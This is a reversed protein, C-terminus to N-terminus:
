KRAEHQITKSLENIVEFTEAVERGGVRRSNLLMNMSQTILELNGIDNNHPNGDIHRVVMGKPIMGHNARWVLQALPQWNGMAMRYYVVPHGKVYRISIKRTTVNHPVHGKPFQGTNHMKKYKYQIQESTLRFGIEDLKSKIATETKGFLTAIQGRTHTPYLDKLQQVMEPTWKRRKDM